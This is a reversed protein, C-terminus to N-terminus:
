RIRDKKDSSNVDNQRLDNLAYLFWNHLRKGTAPDNATGGILTDIFANAHV